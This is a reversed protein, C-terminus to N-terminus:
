MGGVAAGPHKAVAAALPEKAKLLEAGVVAGVQVDVQRGRGGIRGRAFEIVVEDVETVEFAVHAVLVVLDWDPDVEVM